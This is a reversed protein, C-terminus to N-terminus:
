RLLESIPYTGPRLAGERSRSVIVDRDDVRLSMSSHGGCDSERTILVRSRVQAGDFSVIVTAHHEFDMFGDMRGCAGGGSASVEFAATLSGASAELSRPEALTMRAGNDEQSWEDLRAVVATDERQAVVFAALGTYGGAYSIVASVFLLSQGNARVAATDQIADVSAGETGEFVVLAAALSHEPTEPVLARLRDRVSPNDRVALSRV